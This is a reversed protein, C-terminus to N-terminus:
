KLRPARARYLDYGGKGGPRDSSFIFGGASEVPRFENHATNFRSGLNRPQQWAGDRFVAYYLDWGGRGGARNSAFLLVPAGEVGHTGFLATEDSDSCLADVRSVKGEHVEYIDYGKGDRDSAFYERYYTRTWYAENAATNLQAVPGIQGTTLWYRYLDLGGKGGARDSAFVIQGERSYNEVNSRNGLDYTPGFENGPSALEKLLRPEGNESFIMISDSFQGSATWLDFQGGQAGRNTSWVYAELSPPAAMNYDDFETNLEHIPVPNQPPRIRYSPCGTVLLLLCLRLM